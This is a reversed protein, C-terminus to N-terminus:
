IWEVLHPLTKLKFQFTFSIRGKIRRPPRAKRYPVAAGSDSSMLIPPSPRMASIAGDKGSLSASTNCSSPCSQEIIGGARELAGSGGVARQRGRDRFFLHDRAPASGDLRAAGVAGNRDAAVGIDIRLGANAADLRHDLQPRLTLIAHADLDDAM